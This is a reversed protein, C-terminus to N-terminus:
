TGTAGWDNLCSGQELSNNPVINRFLCKVIMWEGRRGLARGNRRSNGCFGSPCFVLVKFGLGAPFGSNWVGGTIM